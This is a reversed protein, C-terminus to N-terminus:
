YCNKNQCNAISWIQTSMDLTGCKYCKNSACLGSGFKYLEVLQNGYDGEDVLGNCNEDIRNAPCYVETTPFVNQTCIEQGGQCKAIGQQCAGVLGVVNCTGLNDLGDDILLDCDDDRNNCIEVSPQAAVANCITSLRNPACVHIGTRLCESQGATCSTNLLPFGEDTRGDCDNDLGDGCLETSPNLPTCNNVEVGQNCTITGSTLCLGQGCSTPKSFNEDISGNCNDDLNNCLETLSTQPKPTCANILQGNVCNINGTNACVGQGCTSPMAVYGEDVQANCNNDIGDCQNDLVNQNNPTCTNIMNGQICILSGQSQCAGVGCDVSTPIYSEDIKSDCDDDKFDCDQDNGTPSLTQCSNVEFGNRCSKIGTNKCDGVGCETVVSVYNEDTRGDCDDDIQNCNSDSIAPPNQNCYNQIV